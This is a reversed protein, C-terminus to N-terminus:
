ASSFNKQKKYIRKNKREYKESKVKIFRNKHKIESIIGKQKIMQMKFHKNCYWVKSNNKVEFGLLALTSNKSYEFLCEHTGKKNCQWFVCIKENNM